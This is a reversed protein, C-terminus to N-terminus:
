VTTTVSLTGSPRVGVLAEALWPVPHVIAPVVTVQSRPVTAPGIGPGPGRGAVIVILPVTALLAAPVTVLVAFTAVRVLTPTPLVIVADTVM